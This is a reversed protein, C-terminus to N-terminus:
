WITLYMKSIFLRRLNICDWVLILYLLLLRRCIVFLTKVSRQLAYIRILNFTLFLDNSFIAWLSSIVFVKIIMNSLLFSLKWYRWVVEWITFYIKSIFLKRLNISNWVLILYLLLLQRCIVLLILIRVLNVFEDTFVNVRNGFFWRDLFLILSDKFFGISNYFSVFSKCSTVLVWTLSSAKWDCIVETIFWSGHVWVFM